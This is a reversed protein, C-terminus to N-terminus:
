LMVVSIAAIPLPPRIGYRLVFGLYRGNVRGLSALSCPLGKCAILLYTGTLEEEWDTGGRSSVADSRSRNKPRPATM